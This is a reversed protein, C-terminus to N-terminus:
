WNKTRFFHKITVVIEWHFFNRINSILSCSSMGSWNCGGWRLEGKFVYYVFYDLIEDKDVLINRSIWRTFKERYFFICKRVSYFDSGIVVCESSTLVDCIVGTGHVTVNFVAVSRRRRKSVNAYWRYCFYKETISRYFFLSSLTGGRGTAWM